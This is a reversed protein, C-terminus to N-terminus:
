LRRDPPAEAAVASQSRLEVATALKALAEYDIPISQVFAHLDPVADWDANFGWYLGGDYSVLAVELAEGAMLPAQPYCELMRAGLLYLPVSPGPLNTVIMNVARQSAQSVRAMVGPPLWNALRGLLDVAQSEGSRKLDRTTAVVRELRRWPNPEDLPLPVILSSVRNGRQDRDAETRVDVPVAVRFDVGAVSCGRSEIFRRVAGAVLALVTDNATGGASHGIRMIEDLPLQLWDFRRHAGIEVNLPTASVPRLGAQVARWAGRATRQMAELLEGPEGGGEGVGSRGSPSLLALPAAVRRAAEDVLMRATGPPQKPKWRPPTTGPRYDPSRGMLMWVLDGSSVGDAMCHHLKTILAFRNGELGEVFWIEWLPKGRDLLQSLIRGAMRKLQRIDGPRPLAANRIHYDPNFRPDDVWVPQEFWPVTALKQRLRPHKHLQAEAFARIREVDLARTGDARLLPGAEFIAVSGIHMPLNTDEIELFMSDMASLPEASSAPSAHWDDM